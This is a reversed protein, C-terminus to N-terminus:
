IWGSSVVFLQFKDHMTVQLFYGVLVLLTNSLYCSLMMENGGIFFFYFGGVVTTAPFLGSSTSGGNV